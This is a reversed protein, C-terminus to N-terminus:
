LVRLYYNANLLVRAVVRRVLFVTTSMPTRVMLTVQGVNLLLNMNGTGNSMSRELVHADYVVLLHRVCNSQGVIVSFLVNRVNLIVSVGLHRNAFPLESYVRSREVLVLVAKANRVNVRVSSFEVNVRVARPLNFLRFLTSTVRRVSGNVLRRVLLNVVRIRRRVVLPFALSISLAMAVVSLYKPRGILDHRSRIILFRRVLCLASSTAGNVDDVLTRTEVTARCVFIPLVAVLVVRLTLPPCLALVSSSVSVRVLVRSHVLVRFCNSATPIVRYLVRRVLLIALPIPDGRFVAHRVNFVVLDTRPLTEVIIKSRTRFRSLAVVLVGVPAASRWASSRLGQPGHAGRRGLLVVRAVRSFRSIGGAWRSCVGCM